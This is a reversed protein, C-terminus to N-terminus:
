FLFTKKFFKHVFDCIFNYVIVFCFCVLISFIGSYEEGEACEFHFFHKCSCCNISVLSCDSLSHQNLGCVCSDKSLKQNRDFDDLKYHDIIQDCLPCGILLHNVNNLPLSKKPKSKLSRDLQSCYTILAYVLNNFQQDTQDTQKSKKHRTIIHQRLDAKFFEKDSCFICFFSQSM